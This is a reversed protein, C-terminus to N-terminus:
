LWIVPKRLDSSCFRQSYLNNKLKVMKITEEGDEGEGHQNDWLLPLPPSHTPVLLAKPMPSLSGALCIDLICLHPPDDQDSPYLHCHHHHLFLLAHNLIWLVNTAMRIVVSQLPQSPSFPRSTRSSTRGKDGGGGRKGWLKGQAPSIKLSVM